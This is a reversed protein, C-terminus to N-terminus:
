ESDDDLGQRPGPITSGDEPGRRMSLVRRTLSEAAAPLDAPDHGALVEQRVARSLARLVSGAPLEPFEKVLREALELLETNLRQLKTAM